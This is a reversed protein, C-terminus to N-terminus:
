MGLKERPNFALEIAMTKYSKKAKESNGDPLVIKLVTFLDGSPKGPIGRGKIRLKNNSKSNAPIKSDIKGAPTPANITAGLAAEWPTIPLDVEIKKGDVRFLPHSNFQIQLHLNGKINGALNYGQGALRIQQGQTIGVPIKIKLQREHTSVHGQSDMEPSHLTVTRTAGHFADEIDIIIKAHHDDGHEQYGAGSRYNKDSPQVNPRGFISEFFDSFNHGRGLDSYEFGQDWDPPPSFPQGPQWDSGLQDYATRKEPDKLVEYAESLEKFKAEANHAKSVDPHHKRALKKYARKIEAQSATHEVGMVQYYDKYEMFMGM